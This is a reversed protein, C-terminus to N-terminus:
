KLIYKIRKHCFKKLKKSYDEINIEPNINIVNIDYMDNKEKEGIDIKAFEHITEPYKVEESYKDYLTEFTIESEDKNEKINFMPQRELDLM